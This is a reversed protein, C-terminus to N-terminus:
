NIVKTAARRAESWEVIEIGGIKVRGDLELEMCPIKENEETFLPGGELDFHWGMPIGRADWTGIKIIKM